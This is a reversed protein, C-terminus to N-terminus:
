RDQTIISNLRGTSTAAMDENVLEKGFLTILKASVFTAMTVDTREVLRDIYNDMTIQISESDSFGLEIRLIDIYEALADLYKKALARRPVSEVNNTIAETIAAVEEETLPQDNQAFESIIQGLAELHVGENDKLVVAAKRLRGYVDCPQIGSASALSDSIGIGMTGEDIKLEKAAWTLLGPCGSTEFELSKQDPALPDRGSDYESDDAIWGAVIGEDAMPSFILNQIKDYIEPDAIPQENTLTINVWAPEESVNGDADVAYYYFADTYVGDVFEDTWGDPPTYQVETDGNVLTLEGGNISTFSELYVVGDVLSSEAMNASEKDNFLVEITVAINKANIWEDDVAVPLAVRVINACELCTSDKTTDIIIMARSGSILNDVLPNATEPDELVYLADESDIYGTGDSKYKVSGQGLAEPNKNGKLNITSGYVRITADAKNSVAASADAQLNDNATVTGAYDGQETHTGAGIWISAVSERSGEAEALVDGYITVDKEAGLCVFSKADENDATTVTKVQVAGGLETDGNITLSGASNVYVSGYGKGHVGMHQVTIDYEGPNAISGSESNVTKLRIEGPREEGSTSPTGTQLVGLDIGGLGAEILIDGKQTWINPPNKGRDISTVSGEPGAYLEVHGNGEFTIGDNATFTINREAKVILSHDVGVGTHLYRDADFVVDGNQGESDSAGLTSLTVNARRLHDELTDIDLESVTTGDTPNWTDMSEKTVDGKATDNDVIWLDVPDILFMGSKGNGATLDINGAAVVYEEGSLEFFGGHGFESGGKAEVHAGEDFIAARHSSVVVQGGKGNNRANATTQSNSALMTMDGSTLNISGGDGDVSDADIVGNQVVTGVGSEVRVDLATSFLDGAALVVTGAPASIQGTDENGVYGLGEPNEPDSFTVSAMEVLIHSGAEGLFVRDGAAMVVFGGEGTSITGANLVRKGILTAGGSANITGHNFIEGRGVGAFFKYNGALFDENTINLSSAVLQTVNITATSGFIVGAPNVIFVQGNAMLEGNFQTASGSTIRNLVASTSSLTGGLADYQNFTLSQGAATDFSSWDIIAGPGTNIITHDGWQVPVVGTSGIVDLAELAMVTPLWTNSTLCFTLFYALVKKVHISKVPMLQVERYLDYSLFPRDLVSSKSQPSVTSKKGTRLM